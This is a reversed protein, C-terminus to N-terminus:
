GAPPEQVPARDRRELEDVHDTLREPVPQGSLAAFWAKLREGLAVARDDEDDLPAAGKM